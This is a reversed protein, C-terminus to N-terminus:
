FWFRIGFSPFFPIGRDEAVEIIRPRDSAPDFVLASDIQIVNKANLVNIFDAYFTWREGGWSPRWTLRADVRAFHPLRATNVNSLDGLDPHFLPFGSADRQPVREDRNGDGDEDTADAVLALRVGRIPTRPFGAAWRGTASLDLRSGIKLSAAVSLAHRRDYDFPRTIGYATRTARGFSYSAWGTLPTDAGGGAHAV